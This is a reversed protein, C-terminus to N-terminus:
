PGIVKTSQQVNFSLVFQFICILYYEQEFHFLLVSPSASTHLVLHVACNLSRNWSEKFWDKAAAWSM